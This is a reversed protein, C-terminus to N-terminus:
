VAQYLRRLSVYPSVAFVSGKPLSLRPDSGLKFGRVIIQRVPGFIGASLRLTELTVSRWSNWGGRTVSDPIIHNAPETCRISAQLGPSSAVDYLGNHIAASIAQLTGLIIGCILGVIRTDDDTVDLMFELLDDADVNRRPGVHRKRRERILPLLKKKIIRSHKHVKWNSFIRGVLPPLLASIQFITAADSNFGIFAELLEADDFGQPGLCVRSTIYTSLHTIRDSIDAINGDLPNDTLWTNMSQSVVEAFQPLTESRETEFKRRIFSPFLDEANNQQGLLSGQNLAVGIAHVSARLEDNKMIDIDQPSSGVYYVLPGFLRLGFTKGEGYLRAQKALFNKPDAQLKQGVGVVFSGWTTPPTLRPRRLQVLIASGMLIAGASALINWPIKKPRVLECLIPNTQPDFPFLPNKQICRQACCDSIDFHL